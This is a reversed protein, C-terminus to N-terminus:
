GWHFLGRFGNSLFSRLGWLRDPPPSSSFIERGQQFDFGTIVSSCRSRVFHQYLCLTYVDNLDADKM